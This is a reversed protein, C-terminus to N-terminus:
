YLGSSPSTFINKEVDIVRPRATGLMQYARMPAWWSDRGSQAQPFAPSCHWRRHTKQLVKECRSMGAGVHIQAPREVPWDQQHGHPLSVRQWPCLQLESTPRVGALRRCHGHNGPATHLAHQTRLHSISSKSGITLLVWSRWSAGGWILRLFAPAQSVWLLSTRPPSGASGGERGELPLIRQAWTSSLGSAMYHIPTFTGEPGNLLPSSTM